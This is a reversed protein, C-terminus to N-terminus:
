PTTAVRGRQHSRLLENFAESPTRWGLTKRPRRNLTPRHTRADPARRDGRVCRIPQRGLVDRDLRGELAVGVRTSPGMRRESGEIEARDPDTRPGSMSIRTAVCQCCSLPRGLRRGGGRRPRGARWPHLVGRAHTPWQHWGHRHPRSHPAPERTHGRRRSPAGHAPQPSPTPSPPETRGRSGRRPIKPPVRPPRHGAVAAGLGTAAIRHRSARADKRPAADCSASPRHPARPPPTPRTPGGVLQCRRRRSRWISSSNTAPRLCNRSTSSAVPRATIRPARLLGPPSPERPPPRPLRARHRALGLPRRAHAHPPPGLNGSQHHRHGRRRRTTRTSVPSDPIHDVATARVERGFFAALHGVRGRATRISRFQRVAYDALYADLLDGLTPGHPPFERTPPQAAGPVTRDTTPALTHPPTM